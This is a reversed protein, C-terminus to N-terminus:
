SKESRFIISKPSKNTNHNKTMPWEYLILTAHKLCPKELHWPLIPNIKYLIPKRNKTECSKLAHKFRLGSTNMPLQNSKAILEKKKRNEKNHVVIM